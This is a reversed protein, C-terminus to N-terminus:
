KYLKMVCDGHKETGKTFGLETCKNEIAELSLFNSKKDKPQLKLKSIEKKLIRLNNKAQAQVKMDFAPFLVTFLNSRNPTSVSQPAIALKYWKEATEYDRPVGLGKHYMEGLGFQAVVGGKKAALRFWKLATEYNKTVGQGEAYIVGLFSQARVSSSYSPQEAALKLWKRATEYNQPVGKGEYYLMGLFAQTNANGQKALTKLEGVIAAYDGRKLAHLFKMKKTKSLASARRNWKRSMEYNKDVGWGNHYFDAVRSIADLHDQEAALKYWKLATSYDQPVGKGHEYMWGLKDQADANGQKALPRWEKLATANDGRKYAAWAKELKLQVSPGADEQECETPDYRPNNTDECHDSANASGSLLLVAVTLCLIETLKRM